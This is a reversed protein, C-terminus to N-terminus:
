KAGPTAFIQAIQGLIEHNVTFQNVPTLGAGLTDTNPKVNRKVYAGTHRMANGTHIALLLDPNNYVKAPLGRALQLTTSCTGGFSYDHVIGEIYFEWPVGDKFPAFLLRNGPMIDPRLNTTVSARAMLPTPEYYSTQRLSVAEVLLNMQTDSNSAALRQASAGDPDAFWFISTMQPRYGYRHISAIDVFNSFVYNFPSPQDNTAGNLSSPFTPLVSYYNRVEDDGFAVSKAFPPADLAYTDLKNWLDSNMVFTPKGETGTTSPTWPLPNPRAVVVPTVSTAGPLTDMSLPFGLRQSALHHYSDVPATTVFFEYFPFPFFSQFKSTWTGDATMFNEGFPITAGIFDYPQFYTTIMSFLKLMNDRYPFVTQNMISNPGAMINYYWAWGMQDPSGQLLGQDIDSLRVPLNEVAFYSGSLFSAVYYNAENFFYQFDQGAVNITRQVGQGPQWTESETVSNVVGVMVIQRYAGRRMGILVLSMPTLITTWQPWANAGFPGGPALVLNFTGATGRISKAMSVRLLSANGGSLKFVGGEFPYIDVFCRPVAVNPPANPNPINDSM